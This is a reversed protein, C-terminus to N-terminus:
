DCPFQKYGETKGYEGKIIDAANEAIVVTPLLTAAGPETPLVSADVVRLGRVGRVKLEEDVVAGRACSSTSHYLSSALSKVYCAWYEDSDFVLDDCEPLPPRVLRGGNKKFYSTDKVKVLKRVAEVMREVDSEDSYYNNYIMPPDKPDSSRLTVRGRSKPKKLTALILVREKQPQTLFFHKTVKLNYNLNVFMVYFFLPNLSGFALSYHALDLDGSSSTFDGAVLPGPFSGLNTSLLTTISSTLDTKGTILIPAFVQDQFGHGVPLDKVVPIGLRELDEQPGIGSLMLIKPSNFVGASLIVEKAYIKIKRFKTDVIVGKAEGNETIIKTVHARKLITLNKRGKTPLLYEEATSARRDAYETIMYSAEGTGNPFPILPDNIINMGIEEFAKIMVNNKERLLNNIEQPKASIAGEDCHFQATPGTLINKDLMKEAKKFYKQVFDLNSSGAWESYDREAGRENLLHGISSCGGLVKGATHTTRGGRQAQSVKGDAESYYDWDMPGHTLLPWAGPIVSKLGPDGGAEICLVRWDAVESLRNSLVSGATGCGVIIFDFSDGDRVTSSEPWVTHFYSSTLLLTYFANVVAGIAVDPDFAHGVVPSLLDM